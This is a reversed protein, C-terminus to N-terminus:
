LLSKVVQRDDFPVSTNALEQFNEHGKGAILLVDGDRAMDLGAKIAERRDVSVTFKNTDMLGAKVQEIIDLPDENRPNDSTLISYDALREAVSGMKPRKTRDRNGGCGFVVILRRATIERLTTLVHEMADDTHAYDVFVKFGKRTEIEELRGPVVLVQSLVRAALDPRIGLAGSAALAALANSVNFRGLLKLSVQTDGWPTRAMLVNGEATVRVDEGHVTAGSSFGYTIINGKIETDVALRQGWKDDINVVATAKKKFQGLQKFFLQKAEFYKEMTEHYDLHDHTLNTFVGVDFDMGWVRKQVLSHSSVEMVASKCGVSVMQNLMSHLEPAEPTTRAAPIVRAGIEYNVTGILGPSRGDASLIDRIMYTVTTKGNTGTVGVIQLRADPKGYLVRSAIATAKRADAVEILTVDRAAADERETVVAVAGRNVADDVFLYGDQRRGPVAMFLYGERVRRSDCSLGLIDRNVTGRVARPELLNVITDLKVM